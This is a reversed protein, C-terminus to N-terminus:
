DPHLSADKQPAHREGWAKLSLLVPGLDRGKQTLRYDYRKPRQQYASKELVGAEVLRRLRDAIVHRTAGTNVAFEDFKSLGFFCDRLILVTWRDGILSLTRAVPCPNAALDTWKM